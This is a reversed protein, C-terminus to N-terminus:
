SETNKAHMKPPIHLVSHKIKRAFKFLSTRYFRYKLHEIRYRMVVDRPLREAMGERITYRCPNCRGCPKGNVPSHCFWTQSIIDKLGMDIYEKKMELKTYDVLPFHMNGFVTIVDSSSHAKDVVYYKGYPSDEEILKGHKSILEIAKDDRHISLEINKHDAAFVSLWEYQTGMFDLERLTNFAKSITEDQRQSEHSVYVLPEITAKTSPNNILMNRITDIAKLEYKESERAGSSLYYPRITVDKRSLRCVRFTSDFGGTWLIEVIM